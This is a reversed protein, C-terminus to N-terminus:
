NDFFAIGKFLSIVAVVVQGILTSLLWNLHEDEVSISQSLGFLTVLATGIFIVLVSYFLVDKKLRDM